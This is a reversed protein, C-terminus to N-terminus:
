RTGGALGLWDESVWMLETMGTQQPAILSFLQFFCLGILEIDWVGRLGPPISLSGASKLGLNLKTKDSLAGPILRAASPFSAHSRGFGNSVTLTSAVLLHYNRSEHRKKLPFPPPSCLYAKTLTTM